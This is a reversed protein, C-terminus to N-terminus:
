LNGIGATGPVGSASEDAAVVDIGNFQQLVSSDTGDLEGSGTVTNGVCARGLASQCASDSSTPAYLSGSFDQVPTNINDFISGEVLVYSEEGEFAHGPSDAWYNNM